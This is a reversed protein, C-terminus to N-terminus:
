CCGGCSVRTRPFSAATWPRATPRSERTRRSRPSPRRRTARSCRSRCGKGSSSSWRRARRPACGSASCSSASPCSITRRRCIPIHRSTSRARLLHRDHRHAVVRRGERQEAAAQEALPGLEFLEPAGLVYGVAGVRVASWRRRSSFPIHGLAPESRAPFADAIAELTANRSPSSAAYRGLSETLFAEDVGVAPAARSVELAAETLTGTKDLCVVEASALSEIANLQQALAGRRAMRLAAVAFTVSTLLILGEPVLTVVGAVATTVAENLPKDSEWLAYGFIAGLPLMVAVMVILLLNLARELPSRPHRFTRAVDAVKEAYSAKGVATVTYLGSGEAAFSGSRVEDGAFRPVAQSEGTLISEDLSLGDAQDLVGDAVLQDGAEIRILDGPVVEEVEVSRPNGERVVTAHPAVLAALRDLAQKARWEQFIGIGANAVLIGIFLADEWHGFAFTLVGFSVLILNFVTFVNARVISAM